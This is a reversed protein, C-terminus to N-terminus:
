KSETHVAEVNETSKAKFWPKIVTDAQSGTINVSATKTYIKSSTTCEGKFLIQVREWFTFKVTVHHDIIDRYQITEGDICCIEKLEADM